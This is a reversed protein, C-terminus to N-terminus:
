ETNLQNDAGPDIFIDSHPAASATVTASAEAITWAAASSPSLTVPLGPVSWAITM